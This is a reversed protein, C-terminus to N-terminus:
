PELPRSFIESSSLVSESCGRRKEFISQKVALLRDLLSEFREQGPVSTRKALRMFRISNPSCTAINSPV